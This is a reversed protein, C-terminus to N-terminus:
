PLFFFHTNKYEVNISTQSLISQLELKTPFTIKYVSNNTYVKVNTAKIFRIYDYVRIKICKIDKYPIDVTNKDKGELRLVNDQNNFIISSIQERIISIFLLLYWISILPCLISFLIVGGLSNMIIAERGLIFFCAICVFFMISIGFLMLARIDTEVDYRYKNNM